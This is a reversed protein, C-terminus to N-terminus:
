KRKNPYGIARKNTIYLILLSLASVIFFGVLCVQSFNQALEQDESPGEKGIFQNNRFTSDSTPGNIASNKSDIFYNNVVTLESDVLSLSNGNDRFANSDIVAKCGQFTCIGWENELLLNGYILPAGGHIEIGDDDCFEITNNIINPSCGSLLMGNSMCQSITCDKVLVQDNFIKMGGDGNLHDPRTDGWINRFECGLINARGHIEITYAAEKEKSNFTSNILTLMSDEGTWLGFEKHVTCNFIVNCNEITLNGDLVALDGELYIDRDLYHGPPLESSGPYSSTVIDPSNIDNQYISSGYITSVLIALSVIYVGAILKMNVGFGWNRKRIDFILRMAVAFVGINIFVPAIFGFFMLFVTFDWEILSIYSLLAATAIGLVGIVVYWVAEMKRFRKRESVINVETIELPHDIRSKILDMYPDLDLSKQRVVLYKRDALDFLYITGYIFHNQKRVGEFEAFPYFVEHFGMSSPYSIGNEYLTVGIQSRGLLFIYLSCVLGILSMMFAIIMVGGLCLEEGFDSFFRLYLGMMGVMVGFVLLGTAYQYYRIQKMRRNYKPEELIVDGRM